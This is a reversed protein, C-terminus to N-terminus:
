ATLRLAATEVDDVRRMWGRGFISFTNLARYYTRREQQYDRISTTPNVQAAAITRPGVQGDQPVGLVRQLMKAARAPGANVAFDFVCLALGAPLEGCHVPNWYCKEYLPAVKAPTLARMDAEAAPKGTWAEWTAQTVGLNTVKGPDAARNSYGSEEKLVVALCQDFSM